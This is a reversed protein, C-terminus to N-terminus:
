NINGYGGKLIGDEAEDAVKEEVEAVDFEDILSFLKALMRGSCNRKKCTECKKEDICKKLGQEINEHVNKKILKSSLLSFEVSCSTIIRMDSEDDKATTSIIAMGVEQIDIGGDEYEISVKVIKKM